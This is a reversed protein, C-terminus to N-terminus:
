ILLAKFSNFNYNINLSRAELYEKIKLQNLDVPKISLLKGMVKNLYHDQIFHDIATIRGLSVM